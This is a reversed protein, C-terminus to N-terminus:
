SNAYSRLAGGMMRMPHELALYEVLARDTDTPSVVTEIMVQRVRELKRTPSPLKELFRVSAEDLGEQRWKDQAASVEENSASLTQGLKTAALRPVASQLTDALRSLGEAAISAYFQSARYQRAQWEGSGAEAAGAARDLSEVIGELPVVLQVQAFLIEWLIETGPMKESDLMLEPLLDQPPMEPRWVESYEESPPDALIDTAALSAIAFLM